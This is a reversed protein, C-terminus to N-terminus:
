FCALVKCSCYTLREHFCTLLCLGGVIGLVHMLMVAPENIYIYDAPAGRRAYQQLKLGGLSTTSLDNACAGFARSESCASGHRHLCYCHTRVCIAANSTSRGLWVAFFAWSCAVPGVAKADMVSEASTSHFLTGAGFQQGLCIPVQPLSRLKSHYM